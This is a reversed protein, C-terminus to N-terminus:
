KLKGLQSLENGMLKVEGEILTKRRNLNNIEGTLGAENGTPVTWEEFDKRNADELLKKKFDIDEGITHLLRRKEHIEQNLFAKRGLYYKELFAARKTLDCIERYELGQLGYQYGHDPRCFLKLGYSYGQYYKTRDATIGEKLCQGFFEEQTEKARGDLAVQVGRQYWKMDECLVKTQTSCASLIIINLGLLFFSLLAKM